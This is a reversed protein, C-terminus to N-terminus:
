QLAQSEPGKVLDDFTKRFAELNGISSKKRYEKIAETLGPYKSKRQPAVDLAAEDPPTAVRTQLSGDSSQQPVVAPAPGVPPIVAPSVDKYARVSEYNSQLNAQWSLVSLWRALILPKGPIPSPGNGGEPPTMLLRMANAIHDVTTQDPRHASSPRPAVAVAVCERGALERKNFIFEGRVSTPEAQEGNPTIVLLHIKQAQKSNSLVVYAPTQLRNGKMDFKYRVLSLELGRISM